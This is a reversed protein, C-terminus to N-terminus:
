NFCYQSAAAPSARRAESSKASSSLAYQGKGAQRGILQQADSSCVAVRCAAISSGRSSIVAVVLSTHQVAAGRPNLQRPLQRPVDRLLRSHHLAARQPLILHLHTTAPAAIAASQSSSFNARSTYRHLPLHRHPFCQWRQRISRKSRCIDAKTNLM